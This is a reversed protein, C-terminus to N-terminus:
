TTSSRARSTPLQLSQALDGTVPQITVGLMARRVHGTSILQDM